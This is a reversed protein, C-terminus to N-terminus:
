RIGTFISLNLNESLSLYKNSIPNLSTLICRDLMYDTSIYTISFDHYKKVCQMSGHSSTVGPPLNLSRHISNILIISTMMTLQM